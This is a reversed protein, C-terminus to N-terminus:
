VTNMRVRACNVLCLSEGVVSRFPRRCTGYYKCQDIVPVLTLSRLASIEHAVSEGTLITNCHPKTEVSLRLQLELRHACAHIRRPDIGLVLMRFKTYMPKTRVWGANVRRLLKQSFGGMRMANDYIVGMPRQQERVNNVQVNTLVFSLHELSEPPPMLATTGTPSGDTALVFRGTSDSNMVANGDTDFQVLMDGTGVVVPKDDAAGEAANDLVEFTLWVDTM